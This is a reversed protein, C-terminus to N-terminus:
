RLSGKLKLGRSKGYDPGEWQAATVVCLGNPSYTPEHKWYEIYAHSGFNIWKQDAIWHGLNNEPGPLAPRVKGLIMLQRFISQERDAWFRQRAIEAYATIEALATEPKNIGTFIIAVEDIAVRGMDIDVVCEGLDTGYLM